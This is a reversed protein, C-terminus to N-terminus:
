QIEDDETRVETAQECIERKLDYGRSWIIQDNNHSKETAEPFQRNKGVTSDDNPKQLQCTPTLFELFLKRSGQSFKFNTAM